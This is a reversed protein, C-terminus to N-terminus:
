KESFRRGYWKKGVALGRGGKPVVGSSSMV